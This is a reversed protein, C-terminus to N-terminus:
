AALQSQPALLGQRARNAVHRSEDYRERRQWLTWVIRLWRNALARFARAKSHGKKLQDLFYSRAWGSKRISNRALDM